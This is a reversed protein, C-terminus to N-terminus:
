HKSLSDVLRDFARQPRAAAVSLGVTWGEALGECATVQGLVLIQTDAIRDDVIERREMRLQLNSGVPIPVEGSHLVLTHEDGSKVELNIERGGLSGRAMLAEALSVPPAAPKAGAGGPLVKGIAERLGALTFPKTLFVTVGLERLSRAIAGERPYVASAAIVPVEKAEAVRRAVKLLNVGDMEPLCIDLLILDPPQDALAYLARHADPCMVTRFGLLRLMGAAVEAADPDDEVVMVTREAVAATM